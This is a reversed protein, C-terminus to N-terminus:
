IFNYYTIINKLYDPNPYHHDLDSGDFVSNYELGIDVIKKFKTLLKTRGHKILGAETNFSNSIYLYNNNNELLTSVKETEEVLDLHHFEHTLNRYKEWFELWNELGGFQTIVQDYSEEYSLHFPKNWNVARGVQNEFQKTAKFIDKGDWNNILWQKFQLSILSYDIFKVTTDKTFGSKHLILYPRFAACVSVLTDIPRKPVNFKVTDTNFLFICEKAHQYDVQRFYELQLEQQLENVEIEGNLYKQLYTHHEPYLHHKLKRINQPFNDIRKGEELWARILGTGGKNQLLNTHQKVTSPEIRYPTYDSHFNEESRSFSPFASDDEIEWRPTGLEIHVDLNLCWYEDYLYPIKGPHAMIHGLLGNSNKCLNVTEQLVNMGHASGPRLLHGLASGIVINFNSENGYDICEQETTFYKLSLDLDCNQTANYIWFDTLNRLKEKFTSNVDLSDLKNIIGLLVKM